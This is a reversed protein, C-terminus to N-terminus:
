GVPKWRGLGGQTALDSATRSVVVLGARRPRRERKRCSHHLVGVTYGAVSGLVYRLVRGLIRHAKQVM